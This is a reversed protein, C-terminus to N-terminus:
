PNSWLEHRVDKVVESIEELTLQNPDPELDELGQLFEDLDVNPKTIKKLM